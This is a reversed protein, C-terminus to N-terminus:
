AVIHTHTNEATTFLGGTTSKKIFCIHVCFFVSSLPLCPTKSRVYSPGNQDVNQM